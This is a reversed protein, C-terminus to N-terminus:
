SPRRKTSPPNGTFAISDARDANVCGNDNLYGPTCSASVPTSVGGAMTPGSFEVGGCAQVLTELLVLLRRFISM